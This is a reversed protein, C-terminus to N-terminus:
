NFPFLKITESYNEHAGEQIGKGIGVFLTRSFEGTPAAALSSSYEVELVTSTGVQIDGGRTVGAGSYSDLTPLDTVLLVGITGAAGAQPGYEGGVPLFVGLENTEKHYLIDLNLDFGINIKPINISYEIRIGIADTNSVADRAAEATEVAHDGVNQLTEEPSSGALQGAGCLGKDSTCSMIASLSAGDRDVRHGTPDTFKLPNGLTYSYRNASQPSLPDPVISDASAFRGIGPVYYRARMYILAVEDNQAHGTFGKDTLDSTPTVRYEGYPYFRVTSTVVENGNIDSLTSTSGLHDSHFWYVDSSQGDDVRMAIRQGGLYYYSRTTSGEVEYHEGVFVTSSSDPNITMVRAGSGDYVFRTVSFTLTNTIAVLRNEVDFEQLYAGSGDSRTTMNGNSDYDFSWGNSLGRVAHPQLNANYSYTDTLWTTASYYSKSTINGTPSYSYARSADGSLTSVPRAELAGNGSFVIFHVNEGAHVLEADRTTDEETIVSVGSGNLTTQDYRLEANDAENYTGLQALFRPTSGLDAGFGLEYWEHNVVNGTVGAAYDLGSWQGRGGEIAVWGITETGHATTQIEDEEMAIQFSSCSVSRERAKVWHNDNNTQVQSLVVPSGTFPTGFNISQWQNTVLRGVTANTSVTGAQLLAGNPLRWFGAEVVLYSLTETTHSGDLNPAEHAYVTFSSSTVQTIRPVTTNAGDYSLPWAIVVPNQYQNQLYITQPSHTLTDNIYGVEGITQEDVYAADEESILRDLEDYAYLFSSDLAEDALQEVNGAPDYDYSFDLINGVQLRGLRASLPHYQYTTELSNGLSWATPQGMVNYDASELYDDWGSLSEPLGQPNYSSTVVEGSPYTMEVVRDLADYGYNTTYSGIGDITKTETVVRGRLDYDWETSGSADDTQLLIGLTGLEREEYFEISETGIKLQNYFQWNRGDWDAMTASAAGANSPDDLARITMRFHGEGDASLHCDYWTNASFAMLLESNIVTPGQYVGQYIHGNKVHFGWRRYSPQGWSGTHLFFPADANANDIKFVFHAENRETWTDTRYIARYSSGNGTFSLLGGNVTVQASTGWGTPLSGGDFEDRRTPEGDYTNQVLLTSEHEKETLRGLDDYAFTIDRDLADTQTALNGAANYEYSWAGMDPDVMGVKRGYVDYSMSTTINNTDTVEVLNDLADYNYATDAYLSWNTTYPSGCSFGTWNNDCDGSYENVSILRQLPDYGYQTRHRNPDIVDEYATGSAISFVHTTTAGDASTEEIVRGLADYSTEASPVAPLPTQYPSVPDAGNYVYRDVAYPQSVRIQQGRADYSFDQVLDHGANPSEHWDEAPAQTQVLRGLGDYFQRGWEIGNGYLSTVDPDAKRWVGILFPDGDLFNPRWQATDYYLYGVDPISNGGPQFVSLLRGFDDYEYRTTAGNPTTVAAPLWPIDDDYDVSIVMGLPDVSARPYLGDPDYVITSTIARRSGPVTTDAWSPDYCTLEGYEDYTITNVLNGHGDYEFSTDVSAYTDPWGDWDEFVLVRQMTLEGITIVPDNPVSGGDYQYFSSAVLDGSADFLREVWPVIVWNNTNADYKTVTKRYSYPSGNTYQETKTVLGYQAGGQYSPEYWYQLKSSQTNGSDYYTTEQQKLCAFEIGAPLGTVPCDADNISWSYATEVLTNGQPNQTTELEPKGRWDEDQEFGTVQISFVTGGYDKLTQTVTEFGRLPGYSPADMDPCIHVDHDYGETNTENYCPNDYAVEKVATNGLGDDTEVSTVYYSYGVWPWKITDTYIQYENLSHNDSEYTFDVAGGYGNEAGTLYYYSFCAGNNKTFHRFADNSFTVAPLSSGSDQTTPNNDTDAWQQISHVVWSSTGIPDGLSDTCAQSEVKIKEVDLRYEALPSSLNGAYIYINTIPDDSSPDDANRFSIRSQPTGGPQTVLPGPPLSQVLSPFNYNIDAVRGRDSELRMEGLGGDYSIKKVKTSTYYTYVMQNGYLDTVTDVNWTMGSIRGSRGPHGWEWLHCSKDVNQVFESDQTFGMRYQTGDATSLVWVLGDDNSVDQPDAYYYRVLKLDPMGEVYYRFVADNTENGSPDPVLEYGQGSFVLRFDSPHNIAPIGNGTPASDVGVRTVYIQPLSWGLGIPGQIFNSRIHGDAARSNYSLTLSPQMGNRGPPVDISYQYTAAGSFADVDPPVWVPSWSDPLVGANWDSFHTTEASILGDAQHITIPVGHWLTKDAEDRYELYWDRTTGEFQGALQRMDIVIRVPKEFSEWERGDTANEATLHFRLLSQDELAFSTEWTADWMPEAMEKNRELTLQMETPAAFTGEEVVVSIAGDAFSLIASEGPVDLIAVEDLTTPSAVLITTDPPAFDTLDAADALPKFDMSPRLDDESTPLETPEDTPEATAVPEDVTETAPEATTPEESAVPEEDAAPSGEDGSSGSGSQPITESPTDGDQAAAQRAAPAALQVLMFCVLLLSFWRQHKTHSM